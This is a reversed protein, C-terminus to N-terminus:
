PIKRGLRQEAVKLQEPTLQKKLRASLGVAPKHNRRASEAALVFAAVLDKGVGQGKEYLNSLMFQGVPDGQKAAEGYLRAAIVYDQKVPKGNGDEYMIGLNVMAPSYRQAAAASFWKLANDPDKSVGRGDRFKIGLQNQSQADGLQAAKQYWDNSKSEDKPLGSAGTEYLRAMQYMAPLSDKGAAKQFWELAATADPESGIGNMSCVGLQYWAEPLDAHAAARYYFLARDVDVPVGRGEEYLFGLELNAAANGDKAGREFWKKAEELDPAEGFAGFMLGRGLEVLADASGAEAAVKMLFRAKEVDPRPIGEGAYDMRALELVAEVDKAADAKSLWERAASYDPRVRDSGLRLLRGYRRMGAPLGGEAAAQYSVRAATAARPMGKGTEECYGVVLAAFRDGQAAARRLSALSTAVKSSDDSGTVVRAADMVADPAGEIETISFEGAILVAQLLSWLLWHTMLKSIM